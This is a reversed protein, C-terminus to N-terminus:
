WPPRYPLATGFRNGIAPSCVMRQGAFVALGAATGLRQHHGPHSWVVIIEDGLHRQRGVVHRQHGLEPQSSENFDFDNITNECCRRPRRHQRCRVFPVARRAM